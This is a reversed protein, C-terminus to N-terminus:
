LSRAPRALLARLSALHEHRFPILQDLGLLQLIQRGRPDKHLARMGEDLVVGYDAYVQPRVAIVQSSLLPSRTLIQLERALQPNMECMTAFSGLSVVCAGVSGFFVPLVAAATRPVTRVVGFWAAPPPLRQEHLVSDLWLSSVNSTGAGAVLVTAGRVSQLDADARCLLGYSAGPLGDILPTLLPILETGERLALYDTSMLVLLDLRADAVGRAAEDVSRVVHARAKEHRGIKSMFDNLWVQVSALADNLDVADFMAESYAIDLYVEPAPAQTAGHGPRILLFVALLCCGRM